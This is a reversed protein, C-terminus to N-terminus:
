FLLSQSVVAGYKQTYSSRIRQNIDQHKNKAMIEVFQLLRMSSGLPIRDGSEWKTATSKDVFFLRAFESLSLGLNARIDAIELKTYNYQGNRFIDRIATACDKQTTDM